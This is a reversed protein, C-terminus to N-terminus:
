DLGTGEGRRKEDQRIVLYRVSVDGIVPIKEYIHLYTEPSQMQGTSPCHTSNPPCRLSQAVQAWGQFSSSVPAFFVKPYLHPHLFHVALTFVFASVQSYEVVILGAVLAKQLWKDCLYILLSAPKKKREHSEEEALSFFYESLQEGENKLSQNENVGFRSFPTQYQTSRGTLCEKIM